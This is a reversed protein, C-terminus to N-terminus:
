VNMIKHKTFKFLWQTKKYFDAANKKKFFFGVIAQLVIIYLDQLNWRLTQWETLNIIQFLVQFNSNILLVQATKCPLTPKLFNCYEHLASIPRNM